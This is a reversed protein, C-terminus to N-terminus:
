SQEEKNRRGDVFEDNWEESSYGHYDSTSVDDDENYGSPIYGADNESTYDVDYAATATPQRSSEDIAWRSYEAIMDDATHGIPRSASGSMESAFAEDGGETGSMKGSRQRLPLHLALSRYALSSYSFFCIFRETSLVSCCFISYLSDRKMTSLHEPHAVIEKWGRDKAMEEM